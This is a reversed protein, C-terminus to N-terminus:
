LNKNSNINPAKQLEEGDFGLDELLIDEESLHEINTLTDSDSDDEIFNTQQFEVKDCIVNEPIHPYLRQLEIVQGRLCSIDIDKQQITEDNLRLDKKLNLVEESRIELQEIFKFHLTLFWDSINRKLDFKIKHM